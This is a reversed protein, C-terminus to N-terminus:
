RAKTDARPSVPQPLIVKLITASAGEPQTAIVHIRDLWGCVPTSYVLQIEAKEASGATQGLVTYNPDGRVCGQIRQVVIQPSAAATYRLTLTPHSNGM